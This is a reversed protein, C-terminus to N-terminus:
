QLNFVRILKAEIQGNSNPDGITVILEGVKLDAVKLDQRGLRITTKDSVAVTKEMNDSGKIILNNGDIKIIAGTVGSADIYDDNFMMSARRMFGGKPGGFNKHYNESWKFSFNAKRYGVSVGAGFVLISIVLIFIGILTIKVSKSRAVNALEKAVSQNNEQNNNEM